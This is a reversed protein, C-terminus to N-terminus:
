LIDELLGGTSVIARAETDSIVYAIDRPRLMPLISVPVAGVKQLALWTAVFEPINPLRLVVRDGPRIGLGRVLANGIRNVRKLLEGYSICTDDFYIAPAQGRGTEVHRDLLEVAVNLREPYSLPIFSPWLERPPLYNEHNPMTGQM